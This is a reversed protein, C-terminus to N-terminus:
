RINNRLAVLVIGVYINISLASSYLYRWLINKEQKMQSKKYSEMVMLRIVCSVDM